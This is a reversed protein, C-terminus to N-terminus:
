PITQTMRLYLSVENNIRLEVAVENSWQTPQKVNAVRAAVRWKCFSLVISITCVESLQVRTPWNLSYFSCKEDLIESIQLVTIEM